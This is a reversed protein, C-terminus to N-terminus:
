LALLDNMSKSIQASSRTIYRPHSPSFVLHNWSKTRQRTNEDILALMRKEGAAPKQGRKKIASLSVASQTKRNNIMNGDMIVTNRNRNEDQPLRLVSKGGGVAGGKNRLKKVGGNQLKMLASHSLSSKIAPSTRTIRSNPSVKSNRKFIGKRLSPSNISTASLLRPTSGPAGAPGTAGLSRSLSRPLAATSMKKSIKSRPTTSSVPTSPKPANAMDTRDLQEITKTITTVWQRKTHEDQAVLTHSSSEEEEQDQQSDSNHSCWYVRFANKNHSQNTFARHFSGPKVAEGDAIDQCGLCSLPIPDRYVQIVRGIGPRTVCRGLVLVTDMLSVYVKTGRSNRLVGSLIEEKASAVAQPLTSTLFEMKAISAACRSQAMAKDVRNITKELISIAHNLLQIDDTDDSFKIVQKLLLPYKVLRSRPVDLYSWLDLKRSFPSELCRQLFDSFAKDSDKKSDLFEKAQLLNSCYTVYPRDLTKAWNVVTTGIEFWFGDRCQVKKLGQHLTKHLPTLASLHGFVLKEEEPKLLNLHIMSDAYTRRVLTLDDILDEEGNYIEYIAEQLKIEKSSLKHCQDKYVTSWYRTPRSKTPTPAPVKYPTLQSTSSKRTLNVSSRRFPSGPWISEQLSVAGPSVRGSKPHGSSGPEDCGSAASASPQEVMVSASRALSATSPTRLSSVPSNLRASSLSKSLASGMKGLPTALVSALSTVRPMKKKKPEPVDNGEMELSCVSISDPDQMSGGGGGGGAGANRRKRKRLTFNRLTRTPPQMFSDKDEELLSLDLGNEDM